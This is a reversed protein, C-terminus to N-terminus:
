PEKRATMDGSQTMTLSWRAPILLTTYEQEIIAPGTVSAGPALSLQRHVPTDVWAGGVHVPRHTVPVVESPAYPIAPGDAESLVGTATLRLTVLEVTEKPDDFSFRQRHQDEFRERLTTLTAETVPGEPLATMLEFAQGRYRLDATLSLIRKDPAIKDQDLLARGRELLDEAMTTLSPLSGPALPLIETRSLDHQIDSHLIGNASFTSPDRPFIVNTIGLEEAV